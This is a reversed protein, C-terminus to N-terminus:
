LVNATPAGVGCGRVVGKRVGVEEVVRGVSKPHKTGANTIMTGLIKPAHDDLEPASIAQKLYDRILTGPATGNTKWM